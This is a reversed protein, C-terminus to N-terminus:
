RDVKTPETHANTKEDRGCSGIVKSQSPNRDWIKDM